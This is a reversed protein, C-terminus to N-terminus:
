YPTYLTGVAQFGYAVAWAVENASTTYYAWGNSHRLITLQQTAVGSNPNCSYGLFEVASSLSNGCDVTTAFYYMYSPRYLCSYIPTACPSIPSTALKFGVGEYTHGYNAAVSEVNQWSGTWYRAGTPTHLTRFISRTPIEPTAKTLVPPAFVVTASAAAAVPTPTPTTVVVVVQQAQGNDSDDGQDEDEDSSFDNTGDIPTTTGDVANTATKSINLPKRGCATVSLLVLMLGALLMKM